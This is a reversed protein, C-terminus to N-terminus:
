SPSSLPSTLWIGGIVKTLFSWTPLCMRMFYIGLALTPIYHFM